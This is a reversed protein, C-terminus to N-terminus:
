GLLPPPPLFSFVCSLTARMCVQEEKTYFAAAYTHSLYVGHQQVHNLAKRMPQSLKRLIARKEPCEFIALPWIAENSTSRYGDLYVIRLAYFTTNRADSFCRGDGLLNIKYKLTDRPDIGAVQLMERIVDAPELWM